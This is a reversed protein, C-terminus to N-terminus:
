ESLLGYNKILEDLNNYKKNYIRRKKMIAFDKEIPNFDPSYPPLFLVQHGAEQALRKIDKKNHFPANDMIITSKPHLEKFLHQELWNNVWATDTSGQYLIPALLQKGRKAAILNTRRKISGIANGHVKKGKPAWGAPRYADYEFGSEDMYVLNTSGKSQIIRRLARLYTIRKEPDREGYKVSKKIASAWKKALM